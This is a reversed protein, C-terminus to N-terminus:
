TLRCGRSGRDDAMERVKTEEKKNEPFRTRHLLRNPELLRDKSDDSFGHAAHGALSVSVARRSSGSAAKGGGSGAGGVDITELYCGFGWRRSAEQGIVVGWRIRDVM